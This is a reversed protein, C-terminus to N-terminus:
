TVLVTCNFRVDSANTIGGVFAGTGVATSFFVFPGSAVNLSNLMTFTISSPGSPFVKRFPAGSGVVGSLPRPGMWSIYTETAGSSIWNGGVDISQRQHGLMQFDVTNPWTDGVPANTLDSSNLRFNTANFELKSAPFAATDKVWQAGDWRANVTVELTHLEAYLRYKYADAAGAIEWLLKRQTPATTTALAPVKEDSTGNITQTASFVNAANTRVASANLADLQSRVSGAPLTGSSRAAGVSVGSVRSFPVWSYKSRSPSRTRLRRARRPM